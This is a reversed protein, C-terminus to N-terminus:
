GRRVAGPTLGTREKLVRTLHSQSAFGCRGAVEVIPLATAALLGLAREVRRGQVYSWVAQGHAARFARAFGSRSMTAVAALEGVTLAGALHAEIYDVARALRRDEAGPLSGPLAGRGCADLLEGVLTMFLGDTLLTSAAGTRHMSSWLRDVLEHARPLERFRGTVGDLADPGAGVEELLRGVTDARVTVFRVRAAPVRLRCEQFAPQVDVVHRPACTTRRWGDGFDHEFAAHGSGDRPRISGIAIEPVAPDIVEIAGQEVEVMALDFTGGRRHQQDFAAYGSSRYHEALSDSAFAPSREAPDETDCGDPTRSEDM